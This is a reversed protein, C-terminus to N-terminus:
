FYYILFITSFFFGTLEQYYFHEYKIEHTRKVLKQFLWFVVCFVLWQFISCLILMWIDKEESFYNELANQKIIDEKSDFILIYIRFNENV